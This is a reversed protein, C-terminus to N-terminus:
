SAASISGVLRRSRSRRSRSRVGVRGGRVVVTFIVTCSSRTLRRRRVSSSAAADRRSLRQRLPSECLLREPLSVGLLYRRSELWLRPPPSLATVPPPPLECREGG